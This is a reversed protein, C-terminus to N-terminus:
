SSWCASRRRSTTPASSSLAVTKGDSKIAVGALGVGHVGTLKTSSSV